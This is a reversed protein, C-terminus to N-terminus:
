EASNLEECQRRAQEAYMAADAKRHKWHRVRGDSTHSATGQTRAGRQPVGNRYLMYGCSDSTFTWPKETTTTKM